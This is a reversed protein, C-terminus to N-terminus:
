NSWGKNQVESILVHFGKEVINVIAIYKKNGPVGNLQEDWKANTYPMQSYLGGTKLSRKQKCWPTTAKFLNKRVLLGLNKLGQSLFAFQVSLLCLVLAQGTGPYSWRYGHKSSQGAVSRAVTSHVDHACRERGDSQASRQGVGALTFFFNALRSLVEVLCFCCCCFFVLYPITIYVEAPRIEVKSENGFTLISVTSWKGQYSLGSFFVWSPCTLKWWVIWPTCYSYTHLARHTLRVWASLFSTPSSVSLSLGKPFNQFVSIGPISLIAVHPLRPLSFFWHASLRLSLSHRHTCTHQQQWNTIVHPLAWCSTTHDELLTGWSLSVLVSFHCLAVLLVSFSNWLSAVHVSHVCCLAFMQACHNIKGNGRGGCANFKLALRFFFLLETVETQWTQPEHLGSGPWGKKKM